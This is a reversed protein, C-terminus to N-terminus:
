DVIVVKFFTQFFSIGVSNVTILPSTVFRSDNSLNISLSMLVTMLQAAFTLCKEFPVSM